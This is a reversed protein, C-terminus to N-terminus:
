PSESRFKILYNVFIITINPKTKNEKTTNKECFYRMRFHKLVSTLIMQIIRFFLTKVGKNEFYVNRPKCLM